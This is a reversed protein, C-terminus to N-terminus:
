LSVFYSLPYVFSLYKSLIEFINQFQNANCDISKSATANIQFIRLYYIFGIISIAVGKSSGGGGGGTAASTTTLFEPLLCRLFLARTEFAADRCNAYSCPRADDDDDDDLHCDCRTFICESTITFLTCTKWISIFRQVVSVLTLCFHSILLLPLFFSQFLLCSTADILLLICHINCLIRNGHSSLTLRLNKPRDIWM